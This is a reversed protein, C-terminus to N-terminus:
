IVYSKPSWLVDNCCLPVQVSLLDVGDEVHFVSVPVDLEARVAAVHACEVGWPFSFSEQSHRKSDARCSFYHLFSIFLSETVYTIHVHNGIVHDYGRFCFCGM